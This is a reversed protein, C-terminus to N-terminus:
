AHVAAADLAAWTKPGAIGDPVMDHARQFARLVAETNAGFNGDAQVGLLQQMEPVSGGNMGRRLTARAAGTPESAPILKIPPAAGTMIANVAVRFATMDFDPDSKRGSPLAYEKHGCVDTPARGLHTLIAAIGRQYADVQAAPWPFDNAGGTNEAEVGIFNSNGNVNGKWIGAGAHNCRGAAVVYFTGDRGLGLQALPGPLAAVDNDGPRGKILMDLTPMNGTRSGATHHCIIGLTAGVDRTGRTEWGPVTAVKLGAAKLVSPLWILSFTM